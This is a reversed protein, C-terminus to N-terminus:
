AEWGLWNGPSSQFDAQPIPGGEILRDYLDFYNAAVTPWSFAAATELAAEIKAARGPGHLADLTTAAFSEPDPPALWANYAHAYSTIGGQNPAVLPLGSAMAELPAIGFPERPNPHLFADCSAYIQALRQRDAEYGWFLVDGNQQSAWRAREIGDGVVVLRCYSPLLAFSRFLLELNKEPALRGTYLILHTAPSDQLLRARLLPSRRTPRFSELDVGMGRVFIGRHLLHGRGALRLEEATHLSVTVHHDFFAFYIWKMYFRTFALGLPHSGIYTRFNDDLREHSLGILLPRFGLNLWGKRILGALYHLSYKDSVELLQPSEARLIDVVKRNVGPWSDPRILRYTSDFPSPNAQVTYHRVTGKQQFHDTPGPVVFVIERGQQKAAAALARYYTAVGGSSEHWANTLHLTKAVIADM